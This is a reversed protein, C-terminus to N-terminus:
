VSGHLDLVRKQPYIKLKIVGPVSPPYGKHNAYTATDLFTGTIGFLKKRKITKQGRLEFHGMPHVDKTHHHGMLYIDANAHLMMDDVKNVKGGNKAGGGHGHTSYILVPFQHFQDRDWKLKTICNFGMYPVNLNECIRKVINIHHHKWMNYDHNGYHMGLLKGAEAIPRFYEQIWAIQKEIISHEDFGSKFLEPDIDAWEFRKLDQNTIFEGYDGMGFVGINPTNLVWDRLNFAYKKDVGINGYHIDGIPVVNYPKLPDDLTVTHVVAEM